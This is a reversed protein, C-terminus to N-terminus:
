YRGRDAINWQLSKLRWKFGFSAIQMALFRGTAFSNIQNDIGAVFNKTPKFSIDDNIRMKSGVKVSFIGGKVAEINPVLYTATKVKAPDGLTMDVREVISSFPAGDFTASADVLYVKPGLGGIVLRQEDKGYDSQAWASLGQNWTFTANDWTNIADANVRGVNACFNGPLDRDGWTRSAWNWVMAKTCATAGIEPYCVWIEQRRPEVALFSLQKYTDDVQSNLAARRAGDIISTPQGGSHVYVDGNGLVCHGGPFSAVCNVSLAGASDAIKQIRFVDNGGVFQMSYYSDTKYIIFSNGLQEGDVLEGETEARPSSGAKNTTTAVWSSPLSGPLAADSWRITHPFNTGSETMNMAILFSNFSRISKARWNADWSPLSQCLTAPNGAWFQPIDVGNNIVAIGGFACTTWKNFATGTHLGALRTINNHTVGDTVGIGQLGCYLWYRINARSIPQLGYAVTLLNGFVATHGAASEVFNNRFSVNVAKTYVGDGLESAILDTNLGVSGVDDVRYLM